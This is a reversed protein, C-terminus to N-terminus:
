KVSLSKKKNWHNHSLLSQIIKKRLKREFTTSIMTESVILNNLISIM